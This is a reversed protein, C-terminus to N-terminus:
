IEENSLLKIMYLRMDKDPSNLANLIMDQNYKKSPYYLIKFTSTINIGESYRLLSSPRSSIKDFNKMKLEYPSNNTFGLVEYKELDYKPNLTYIIGIKIFGYKNM